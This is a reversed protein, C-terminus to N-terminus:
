NDDSNEGNKLFKVRTKVYVTDSLKLGYPSAFINWNRILVWGYIMSMKWDIMTVETKLPGLEKKEIAYWKYFGVLIFLIRYDLEGIILIAAILCTVNM